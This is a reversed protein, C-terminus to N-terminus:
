NIDKDSVQLTRLVYVHKRHGKSPAPCTLTSKLTKMDFCVQVYTYCQVTNAALRYTQTNIMMCMLALVPLQKRVVWNIRDHDKPHIPSFNM